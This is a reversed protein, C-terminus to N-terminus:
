RLLELLRLATAATPEGGPSHDDADGKNTYCYVDLGGDLLPRLRAAVAALSADDYPPERLRFYRFPEDGQEANV